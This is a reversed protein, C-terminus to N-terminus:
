QKQNLLMLTISCTEMSYFNYSSMKFVNTERNSLLKVEEEAGKNLYTSLFSVFEQKSM